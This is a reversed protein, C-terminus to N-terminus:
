AKQRYNHMVDQTLVNCKGTLPIYGFLFSGVILLLQLIAQKNKRWRREAPTGMCKKEKQQKRTPSSSGNVTSNEVVNSVASIANTTKHTPLMRKRRLIITIAISIAIISVAPLYLYFAYAIQVYVQWTSFWYSSLSCSAWRARDPEHDRDIDNVTNFLFHPIFGGM